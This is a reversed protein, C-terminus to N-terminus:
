GNYISVGNSEGQFFEYQKMQVFCWKLFAQFQKRECNKVSRFSADNLSSFLLVARASILSTVSPQAFHNLHVIIISAFQFSHAHRHFCRFGAEWTSGLPDNESLDILKDTLTEISLMSNKDWSCQTQFMLLFRFTQSFNNLKVRLQRHCRKEVQSDCLATKCHVVSNPCFCTLCCNDLCRASCSRFVNTTNLLLIRM